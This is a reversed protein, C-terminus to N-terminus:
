ERNMSGVTLSRTLKLCNRAYQSYDLLVELYLLSLNVKFCMLYLVRTDVHEYGSVFLTECSILHRTEQRVLYLLDNRNVSVM